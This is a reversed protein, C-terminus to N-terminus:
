VNIAGSVSLATMEKANGAQGRSRDIGTAKQNFRLCEAERFGMLLFGRGTVPFSERSATKNYRLM